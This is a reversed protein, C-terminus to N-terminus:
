SKSQTLHHQPIWAPDYSGKAQSGALLSQSNQKGTARKVRASLLYQYAVFGLLVLVAGLFLYLFFRFVFM